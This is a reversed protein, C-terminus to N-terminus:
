IVLLHRRGKAALDRITGALSPKLWETPGVKSQYCLLHPSNWRGKEVVARVTGEIQRQYPDGKEILSVPVGHASFVLDIEGPDHHSLKLYSININDVIADIYQPHTHYERVIESASPTYDLIQPQRNWERISSGTTAKSYQPYLPLLIIKEFREKKLE